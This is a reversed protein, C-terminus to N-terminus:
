DNMRGPNIWESIQDVKQASELALTKARHHCYWLLSPYLMTGSKPSPLSPFLHSCNQHRNNHCPWSICVENGPGMLTPKRYSTVHISNQLVSVIDNRGSALSSQSLLSKLVEKVAADRAILVIGLMTPAGIFIPQILEYFFLSRPFSDLCFSCCTCLCPTCFPVLCKPM